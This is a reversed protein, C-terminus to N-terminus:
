VFFSMKLQNPTLPPHIGKMKITCLVALSLVSNLASNRIRQKVNSLLQPQHYITPPKLVKRQPAADINTGFTMVSLRAKVTLTQLIELIQLARYICHVDDHSVHCKPFNVSLM